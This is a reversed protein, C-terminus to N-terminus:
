LEIPRQRIKAHTNDVADHSVKKPDTAVSTRPEPPDSPQFITAGNFSTANFSVGQREITPPSDNTHLVDPRPSDGTSVLGHPRLPNEDYCTLTQLFLMTNQEANILILYVDPTERMWIVFKWALHVQKAALPFYVLRAKVDRGFSQGGAFEQRSAREVERAASQPNTVLTLSLVPVRFMKSSGGLL